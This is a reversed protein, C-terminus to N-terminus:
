KVVVDQFGCDAAWQLLIGYLEEKDEPRCFIQIKGLMGKDTEENRDLRGRDPMWLIGQIEKEEFGTGTLHPTMSKAGMMQALIDEDWEAYESAKNDSLGYVKADEESAFQHKIVPVNFDKGAVIPRISPHDGDRAGQSKILDLAKLTTNGKYATMNKDWINVPSKLGNKRILDALKVAAKDNKRPNDKWFKIQSRPIYKISMEEFDSVQARVTRLTPM